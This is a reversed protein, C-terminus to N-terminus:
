AELVSSQKFKWISALALAFGLPAYLFLTSYTGTLDRILGFLIPSVISAGFSFFYYYGTYTGLEEERAIELVLPLSNINIMAWFIGAVLLLVRLVMLSSILLMPIFSFTIGLLGIVISKKRGIKTGILGAPLAFLVFTGTFFALLMSAAGDSQGLINKAYLTFFTEIANYACFWFFIALLIRLLNRKQDKPIDKFALLSMHDSAEKGNEDGEELHLKGQIPLRSPERVTLCLLLIALFMVVAGMTFVMPRGFANALKGGVLFALIGALGGMLNILGNAKSWLPKPTLDPMLAIMPSRWVSMFFNFTIIVLMLSILTTMRPIFFFLLASIPAAVMIYPIRRGLRSRHRDSLNGFLPQFIVGFVNDITMILGVLVSHKVFDSLILPVFSNYLTWLLTSAFFGAGILLTKPYNLRSPM